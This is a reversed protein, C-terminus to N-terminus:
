DFSGGGDADRPWHSRGQGRGSLNLRGAGPRGRRVPAPSAPPEPERAYGSRVRARHVPQVWGLERVPQGDRWTIRWEDVAQDVLDLWDDALFHYRTPGDELVRTFGSEKLVGLHHSVSSWGKGMNDYVMTAIDGSSAAGQCLLEVIYHRVPDSLVVFPSVRRSRGGRPSM